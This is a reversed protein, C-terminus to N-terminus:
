LFNNTNALAILLLLHLHLLGGHLLLSRGLLCLWNLLRLLLINHVCMACALRDLQLVLGLVTKDVAGRPAIHKPTTTPSSSINEVEVIREMDDGLLHM